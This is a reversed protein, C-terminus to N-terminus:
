NNREWDKRHVFLVKNKYPLKEFLDLFEQEFYNRDNMIVCIEYSGKRKARFYSKCGIEWKKLSEDFGSSHGFHVVVDDIRGMPECHEDEGIYEVKQSFYYDPNSCIKLFDSSSYWNNVTPTYEPLEYDKMIRGGVCDSSLIIIKKGSKHLADSLAERKERFVNHRKEERMEHYKKRIVAINM